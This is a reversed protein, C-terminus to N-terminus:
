FLSMYSSMTVQATPLAFHSRARSALRLPSQCSFTLAPPLAVRKPSHREVIQVWDLIHGTELVPSYSGRGPYAEGTTACALIFWPNQPLLTDRDVPRTQNAREAQDRSSCLCPLPTHSARVMCGDLPVFDRGAFPAQYPGAVLTEGGEYGQALFVRSDTLSQNGRRTALGRKSRELVLAQLPAGHAGLASHSQPRPADMDM